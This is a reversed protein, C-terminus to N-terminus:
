LGSPRTSRHITAKEFFRRGQGYLFQRNTRISPKLSRLSTKLSTYSFTLLVAFVIAYNAYKQQEKTLETEAEPTTESAKNETM